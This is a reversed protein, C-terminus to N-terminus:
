HTATFTGTLHRPGSGLDIEVDWAGDVIREAEGNRNDDVLRGTGSVYRFTDLAFSPMRDRLTDMLAAVGATCVAEIPAANGVCATNVCRTAVVQAIARCDVSSTLTTAVDTGFLADNALNIGQWAHAGFGLSFKQPGMTLTGGAAVTASAQQMLTDAKLGGVPVIIDLGLPRFNLGTLTHTMGRPTIELLSELTFQTLTADTIMVLQDSYQRVTNGSIRIKDLETNIWGELRDRLTSPLAAVLQQAPAGAQALLTRAPNASFARLDVVVTTVQAADFGGVLKSAVSYSGDQPIPSDPTGLGAPYDVNAPEETACATATLLAALLIPKIM